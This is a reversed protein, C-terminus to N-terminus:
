SRKKQLIEEYLHEMQNTTRDITFSQAKQFAAEIIQRKPFNAALAKLITEALHTPNQPEALLGTQGDEILEPIGGARTAIVPIKLLMADILSTGLGEEKSSLCFYDFGALFRPADSRFGFFTVRDTINLQKALAELESRLPGDGVLAFRLRPNKEKLLSVAKLLTTQDKHDALAALQGIVISDNPFGMDAKTFPVVGALRKPDVGSKVVTIKDTPIGDQRLIDRVADSIAVIRDMKKYKWQSFPNENIHFDVRRTAITPVDYFCRSLAAQVMAHSSHVHVLDIREARIWRSLKKASFIDWEFVPRFTHTPFKAAALREALASGTRAFCINSHGRENLNQALNFMQQEGGRWTKETNIHAIRFSRSM